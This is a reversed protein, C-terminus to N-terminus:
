VQLSRKYDAPATFVQINRQFSILARVNFLDILEDYSDPLPLYKPDIGLGGQKEPTTLILEIDSRRTLLPTIALQFTMIRGYLDPLFEHRRVKDLLNDKATFIFRCGIPISKSSGVPRIEKEQVCRLLKSQIGIPMRDVEDLLVTGENVSALAGIKNDKADTFSGKLHGFLDSELLTESFGACNLALFPDEKDGHLAKAIIEKGVGTPGTILVPDDYYQLRRARQKMAIMAPDSTIFRSFREEATQNLLRGAIAAPTLTTLDSSSVGNAALLKRVIEQSGEQRTLIKM